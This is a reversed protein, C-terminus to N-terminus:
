GNSGDSKEVSYASVEKKSAESTLTTTSLKGTARARLRVSRINGAATFDSASKAGSTVLGASFIALDDIKVAKGDMVLEKICSVMDRLVGYICGQSYPTNHNAMHEALKELGVTEDTVARAYWYGFAKSGQNVNQYLKYRIMITTGKRKNPKVNQKNNEQQSSLNATKSNREERRSHLTLPVRHLLPLLACNPPMETIKRLNDAIFPTDVLKKTYTITYSQM